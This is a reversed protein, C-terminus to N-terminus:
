NRYIKIYLHEYNQLIVKRKMKLTPTLLNNEVGWVESTLEFAKVQEWKGLKENVKDIEKQLRKLVKKHQIVGENSGDFDIKKRKAWALLFEFHPQIIAAPMKEGDGIVMAQEIFRSEKLLGEIASPAIYKGGSTKFIEKKRGTIKVFGQADIEGKDGTHFIGNKLVENTKMEDKYYGMMVNSGKVLIEGDSGITVNLCNLPIGVTGIKVKQNKYNNASVIPAETLGYGEIIKIGAAGFIKIFKPQLAASGCIMYKLKGGLADKWKVFILKRVINLQFKYWISHHENIDYQEGLGIAWYFLIKKVGSLESGKTYIKDYVKEILRPVVTILEPKVEKLNEGIKDIGEGYYVNIGLYQYVYIACRELIHCVPLFSLVKSNPDLDPLIEISTLINSVINHHSLMVGKPIGTTGSTYIITALDSSKISNKIIEVESQNSDDKGLELLEQWNKCGEIPEFSYIDQLSSVNKRIANVKHFLDDDSLFCLKVEAHNFIYEFERESITPYIPINQAGVQQIGIDMINWETRNTSSIIAIKDNPKVGLQLLARSIANAKNIYEQSSTAIWEGKIKTNFAKNTHYTELQFYPFDFLRTIEQIAM